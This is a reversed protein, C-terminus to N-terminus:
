GDYEGFLRFRLARIAQADAGLAVARRYAELAPKVRKRLREADSLGIWGAPLDPAAETVRLFLAAGEDHRGDDLLLQGLRIEAEVHGPTAAVAALLLQLAERRRGQRLWADAMALSVAPSGADEEIAEALTARAAEAEGKGLLLQGLMARLERAKPRAALGRRAVAEAEDLQGAAELAEVHGVWAQRPPNAMATARAFAAAAGDADKGELLMRGLRLVVHVSGGPGDLASRAQSIADRIRHQRRLADILILYGGDAAPDLAIARRAEQEAAVGEDLALLLAAHRTAVVADEPHLVAARAAADRGEGHRRLVMMADILGHWAQADEPAARVVEELCAVAAQERGAGLLIRGRRLALVTARPHLRQGAVAALVASDVRDAQWLRDTVRLWEGVPASGKALGDILAALHAGASGDAPVAEIVALGLQAPRHGPRERLACLFAAEADAERKAWIHIEGLLALTDADRPMTAVAAEAAALAEDSCGRQRLVRVLAVHLVEDWVGARMADFLAAAADDHRGLLQLCQVLQLRAAVSGPEAEIWTRLLAAEADYQRQIRLARAQIALQRGAAAAAAAAPRAVAAPPQPLAVTSGPQGRAELAAARAARLTPSVLRAERLISVARPGDGELAATLVADLRGTEVLMAALGQGGRPVPVARVGPLAVLRRAQAADTRLRPDFAIIPLPGLDAPRVAMGANRRPDFSRRARPDAPMDAPDISYAPALALTAEAALARGHKLAAYGGMGLGYTIRPGPPMAELALPLLTAMEAAPYWSPEHAAFVLTDWGLLAAQGRGWWDAPGTPKGSPPTFVVLTGRGRGPWHWLRIGASEGLLRAAPRAAAPLVAPRAATAAAQLARRLRDDGLGAAISQRAAEAAEAPRGLATLREVLRLHPELDGPAAALWERLAALEEAEDGSREFARARAEIAHGDDTPRRAARRRAEAAWRPHGRTDLLAATALLVTPAERRAARLGAVADDHRGALLAEAVPVLRGTESFIAPAAQGALRLKVPRIGSLRAIAQAHRDDARSVPDWLLVAGDPYDGPAIRMGGHRLPDFHAVVREGATGDAPDISYQASLALAGRAGLASAYKLAAYGGMRFGYTAIVPRAAARIAPLLAAMVDRPYWDDATTAVGVVDLGERWGFGAGWWRDEALHAQRPGFTVLTWDTRGPRHYVRTGGSEHLLRSRPPTTM